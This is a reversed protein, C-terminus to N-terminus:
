KGSLTPTHSFLNLASQKAKEAFAMWEADSNTSPPILSIAQESIPSWKHIEQEANKDPRFFILEPTKVAAAIHAPGSNFGIFLEASEVLAAMVRLPLDLADISSAVQEMLGRAHRAELEGAGIFIVDLDARTIGNLFEVFKTEPFFTPSTTQGGYHAVIYKRESKRLARAQRRDEDTLFMELSRDASPADLLEALRLNLDIINISEDYPLTRNLFPARGKTSFGARVNAGSLYALLGNRFFRKFLVAHSPRLADLRKILKFQAGIGQDRGRKDYVVLEDIWLCHELLEYGTPDVVIALKAHPYRRRLARLAPVAVLTNGISGNRFAIISTPEIM